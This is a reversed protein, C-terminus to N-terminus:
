AANANNEGEKMLDSIVKSEEENLEALLAELVDFTTLSEFTAAAAEEVGAQGEVAVANTIVFASSKGRYSSISDVVRAAEEAKATGTVRIFSCAQVLQDLERWDVQVFGQKADWVPVREVGADSLSFLYKVGDAQARGKALCDAVSSPVQNGLCHIGLGIDHFVHQHEHANLITFRQTLQKARVEDINLSHDRQGHCAPPLVNCHTLLYCGGAVGMAKDLEMDFLDQNPMHPVVIVEDNISTAGERVVMVRSPFMRELLPALLDFSSIRDAKPSWDHNGRVLTLHGEGSSLWDAFAHFTNLADWTDVTFEDFLDGLVVVDNTAKSLLNRLAALLNVRLAQASEPTTGASRKVGIHLDNLITIPKM